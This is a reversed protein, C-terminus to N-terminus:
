RYESLWGRVPGALDKLGQEATREDPDTTQLMVKVMPPWSKRGRLKWLETRFGDATTFTVGNLEYWYLLHTPKGDREL